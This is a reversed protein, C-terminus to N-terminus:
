HVLRVRMRDKKDAQFAGDRVRVGRSSGSINRDVNRNAELKTAVQELERAVEARMGEPISKGFRILARALLLADLGMPDDIEFGLLFDIGEPM